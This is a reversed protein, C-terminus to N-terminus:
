DNAARRSGPWDHGTAPRTPCTFPLGEVPWSQGPELRAAFSQSASDVTQTGDANRSIVEERKGVYERTGAVTGVTEVIEEEVIEPQEVVEPSVSVVDTRLDAPPRAFDALEIPRADPRSSSACGALIAAIPAAALTAKRLM